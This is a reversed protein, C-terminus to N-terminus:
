RLKQKNQKTARTVVFVECKKINTGRDDQRHLFCFM